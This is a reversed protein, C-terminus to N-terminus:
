DQKFHTAVVACQIGRFAGCLGEQHLALARQIARQGTDMGFKGM